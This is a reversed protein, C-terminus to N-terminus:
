RYVYRDEENINILQYFCILIHGVILAEKKFSPLGCM